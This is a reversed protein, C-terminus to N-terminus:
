TGTMYVLLLPKGRYQDLTLTKGDLTIGSFAPAPKGDAEDRPVPNGWVSKTAGSGCASLVVAFSLLVSAALLAGALRRGILFRRM